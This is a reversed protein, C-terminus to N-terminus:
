KLRVVKNKGEGERLILKKKELNIIYRSFSAKPIDLVKRIKKQRMPKKMLLEVIDKERDNILPMIIELQDKKKIKKKRTLFCVFVVVLLVFGLWYIWNSDEVEEVTYSVGFDLKENEGFLSIMGDSLDLINDIGNVGTIMGVNSPLYIDLLIDEYIALDLAFTWVGGSKSSFMETRGRVTKSSLDFVLGPEDIGVDTSIVFRASGSESLYIDGSIYSASVFNGLLVVVLLFMVVNKM